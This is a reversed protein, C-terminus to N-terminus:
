YRLWNRPNGWGSIQRMTEKFYNRGKEFAEATKNKIFDVVGTQDAIFYLISVSLGVPGLTSVYAMGLDITNKSVGWWDQQNINEFLQTFGIGIFGVTKGLGKLYKTTEALSNRVADAGFGTFNSISLVLNEFNRGIGLETLQYQIGAINMLLAGNDLIELGTEDPVDENSDTLLKYTKDESLHWYKTGNETSKYFTNRGM